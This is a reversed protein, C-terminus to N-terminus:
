DPACVGDFTTYIGPATQFAIKGSTSYSTAKTRIMMFRTGNDGEGITPSNFNFLIADGTNAQRTASQPAAVGVGDTRYDVDTWIPSYNNAFGGRTITVQPITVNTDVTYFRVYFDLTGTRSERVVRDQMVMDITRGELTLKWPTLNNAIVSGILAPNAASTTGFIPVTAGPVLITAHAMTSALALFAFSTAMAASRINSLRNM